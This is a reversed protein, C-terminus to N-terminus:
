RIDGELFTAQHKFTPEVLDLNVLQNHPLYDHFHSGIFGSGGTLLISM